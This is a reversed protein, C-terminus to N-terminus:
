HLVQNISMTNPNKYRTKPLNYNKFTNGKRAKHIALIEDVVKNKNIVEETNVEM